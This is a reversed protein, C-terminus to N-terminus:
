SSSGGFLRSLLETFLESALGPNATEDEPLSLSWGKRGDALSFEAILPAAGSTRLQIVGSTEVDAGQVVLLDAEASFSAIGRALVRARDEEDSPEQLEMVASFGISAGSSSGARMFRSLGVYSDESVSDTLGRLVADQQDLSGGKIGLCLPTPSIPQLVMGELDRIPIFADVEAGQELVPYGPRLQAVLAKSAAERLMNSGQRSPVEVTAGADGAGLGARVLWLRDRAGKMARALPLRIQPSRTPSAGALGRLVPHVFLEFNTLASLPNGPLAFVLTDPADSRSYVGFRLPKGPKIAVKWFVTEIGALEWAEPIVDHEGVSAGGTTLIVQASDLARRLSDAVREAEDGVRDVWLLEAGLNQAAAALMPSNGDVVSEPSDGADEPAVLENGTGIVAVRPRAHVDVEITGDGALLGISAERIRSGAALLLDGPQYEEGARRIHQGSRPEVLFHVSPFASGDDPQRETQEQMVVATAWSPVLGGTFIRVTQGPEAFVDPSDGARVSGVLKLSIPNEKTAGALDEARVAYGDMASNDAAPQNRRACIDRTTYRGLADGVGVSQAPLAKVRGLIQALAHDPDLLAMLVESVNQWLAISGQYRCEHLAVIASSFILLAVVV